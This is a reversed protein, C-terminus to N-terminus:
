RSWYFGRLSACERLNSMRHLSIFTGGTREWVFPNDVVRSQSSIDIIPRDTSKLGGNKQLYDERAKRYRGRIWSHGSRAKRDGYSEYVDDNPIEKRRRRGQSHGYRGVGM